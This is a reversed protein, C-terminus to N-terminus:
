GALGKSSVVRRGADGGEQTRTTLGAQLTRCTSTGTLNVSAPRSSMSAHTPARGATGIRSVVLWFAILWFAILWFAVRALFRQAVIPVYDFV